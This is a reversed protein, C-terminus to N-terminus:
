KITVKTRKGNEVKIYVGQVTPRSGVLRGSLDYYRAKDDDEWAIGSIGTAANFGQIKYFRSWWDDAKYDGEYGTPVYLTARNFVDNMASPDNVGIFLPVEEARCYVAKLSDCGVFIDDNIHDISSPMDVSKIYTCGNFANNNVYQTGQPLVVDLVEQDDKYIHHATNAPNAKANKFNIEAWSDLHAINVYSLVPCLNFANSGITLTHINTLFTVSDLASNNEFCAAGIGQMGAPITISKLHENNIFAGDQASAISDPLTIHSFGCEGFAYEDIISLKKALKVDTLSTGYRFAHKGIRVVSNPMEMHNLSTCSYFAYDDIMKLTSEGNWRVLKLATCESFASPDISNMKLTTGNFTFRLLSTCKEFAESGINVLQSGDEVSVLRLSKSHMAAMMSITTVSSPIMIAQLSDQCYFSYSGVETVDHVRGNYTVKSPINITGSYYQAIENPDDGRYEGGYISTVTAKTDNLLYYLGGVYVVNKAYVIVRCKGVVNSGDQAKYLINTVGPNVATIVGNEDVSAIAQDESEMKLNQYADKPLVEVTMKDYTDGLRLSLTKTSPTISKVLPLVKVHLTAFISSNDYAEYRIDTEGPSVATVTGTSDVTAIQSNSSFARLQLYGNDPNMTMTPKFKHGRAIDIQSHTLKFSQAPIGVTVNCIANAGYGDAAEYRIESIGYGKLEISNDKGISLISTDRSIAKVEKNNAVNPFVTVKVQQFSDGIRNVNLNNTSLTISQVPVVFFSNSGWENASYYSRHNAFLYKFQTFQDDVYLKCPKAETGVSEFCKSGISKMTNPLTLSSLNSCGNFCREPLSTITEPITVTTLSSCNEFCGAGLSNVKYEVGHLKITRLIKPVKIGNVYGMVTATYSMRNLDEEEHLLYELSDITIWEQAGATLFSFTTLVLVASLRQLITRM